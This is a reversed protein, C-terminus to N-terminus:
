RNQEACYEFCISVTKSCRTSLSALPQMPKPLVSLPFWCHLVSSLARMSNLPCAGCKEQVLAVREVENRVHNLAQQRRTLVASMERFANQVAKEYEAVAIQQRM